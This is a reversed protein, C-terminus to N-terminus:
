INAIYQVNGISCGGANGNNGQVVLTLTVANAFNIGSFGITDMVGQGASGWGVSSNQFFGGTVFTQQSNTTSTATVILHLNGFMGLSAGVSESFSVLTAGTSNKLYYTCVQNGGGGAASAAANFYIDITSSATLTSAPLALQISSTAFATASSAGSAGAINFKAIGTCTLVGSGNNIWAQGSACQTAPFTLTVNNLVLGKGTAVNAALTTTANITTSASSVVGGSFTFSQTLDLCGQAIKGNNQGVIVSTTAVQCTSTAYRAQLVLPALIGLDTSSAQQLQTALRVKGGIITTSTPAGGQIVNNAYSEAYLVSALQNSAPTFTLASSYSNIADFTLASEFSDTGNIRRQVLQNFPFDTVQVSTFKKHPFALSSSTANPNSAKIGRNLGTVSTSSATGCIYELTSANIDLTFCYYGIITAGDRTTGKALTMTTDTKTINSTLYTDIIADQKPLTAGLRADESELTVPEGYTPIDTDEVGGPNVSYVTATQPLDQVPAQPTPPVPTILGTAIFVSVIWTAITHLIGM